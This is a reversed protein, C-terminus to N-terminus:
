WRRLAMGAQDALLAALPLLLEAGNLWQAAWSPPVFCCLASDWGAAGRGDGGQLGSRLVVCSCPPKSARGGTRPTCLRLRLTLSGGGARQLAGGLATGRRHDKVERGRAAGPCSSGYMGIPGAPPPLGRTGWTSRFAVSPSTAPLVCLVSGGWQVGVGRRAWLAPGVPVGHGLLGGCLPSCSGPGGRTRWSPVGRARHLGQLGSPSMRRECLEAQRGGRGGCGMRREADSPLPVPPVAPIRPLSRAAVRRCPATGSDLKQPPAPITTPSLQCCAAGPANHQTRPTLADRCWPRGVGPYGSGPADRLQM